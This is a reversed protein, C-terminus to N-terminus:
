ARADVIHRSKFSDTVPVDVKQKFVTEKEVRIHKLEGVIENAKERCKEPLVIQLYDGAGSTKIYVVFDDTYKSLRNEIDTKSAFMGFLKVLDGTRGEYSFERVSGDGNRELVNVLDGTKYRIIPTALNELDTVVLETGDTGEATEVYLGPDFAELVKPKGKKSIGVRSFEVTGMVNYLDTGFNMFRAIYSDLLREGGVVIKDPVYKINRARLEDLLRLAYSPTSYWVAPKFEIIVDLADGMRCTNPAGLPLLAVELENCIREFTSRTGALSLNVLTDGKGVGIKEFMRIGNRIRADVSSKSCFICLPKGTSGSTTRIEVYRDPIGAKRLDDKTSIPVKEWFDKGDARMGFHRLLKRRAELSDKAM